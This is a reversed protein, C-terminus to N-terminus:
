RRAAYAGVAASLTADVYREVDPWREGATDTHVFTSSGAETVALPEPAATAAPLVAAWATVALVGSGLHGVRQLAAVYRLTDGAVTLHLAVWWADGSREPTFGAGAAAEALERRWRGAGPDPPAAAAVEAAVRTDLERFVDCLGPRMGNVQDIMRRHLAGALRAAQAGRSTDDAGLRASGSAPRQPPTDLEGRLVAEELAAFVRVLPLLDGRDAADLASRYAARHPEVLALPAYRTQLLPLLTLAHVVRLDSPGPCTRLLAHHLWAARVLAHAASSQRYREALATLHEQERPDPEPAPSGAVATRVRQVLPVDLERGSRCSDELLTLATLHEDTPQEGGATTAVAHRRLSRSRIAALTGPALRGRHDEWAARLRDTAALRSRTDDDLAPLPAFRPALRPEDM